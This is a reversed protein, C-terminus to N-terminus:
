AAVLLVWLLNSYGEVYEHDNWTLGHGQLFRESYRYSIFSDDVYNPLFYWSGALSVALAVLFCTLLTLTRAQMPNDKLRSVVNTHNPAWSATTCCRPGPSSYLCSRHVPM